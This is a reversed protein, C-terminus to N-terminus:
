KNSYEKIIEFLKNKEKNEKAENRMAFVLLISGVCLLYVWWPVSFWFSRTMVLTDVIIAIITTIFIPGYKKIYTFITVVVLFCIFIMGDIQNAYIDILAKLYIITCGIFEINKSLVGNYKKVITRSIAILLAIYSLLSIATINILNLDKMVINYLCFLSVYLVGKVFDNKNYILQIISWIIFCFVNIYNSINSTAFLANIVGIQLFLYIFSFLTYLNFKNIKLSKLTILCIVILSVVINLDINSFCFIKQFYIGPVLSVFVIIPILEDSKRFNVLKSFTFLLISLYVFDIINININLIIASIITAILKYWSSYKSNINEYIKEIIIILITTTPIVYRLYENISLLNCVSYLLANSMIYAVFKYADKKSFIYSLMYIAASILYFIINQKMFEADFRVAIAFGTAALLNGYSEFDVNELIEIKKMNEFISCALFLMGFYSLAIWNLNFSIILNIMFVILELVILNSCEKTNKHRIITFVIILLAVVYSPIIVQSKFAITVIYLIIGLAFSVKENFEKIKLNNNGYIYMGIIELLFAIQKIKFDLNLISLNTAIFLAIYVCSLAMNTYIEKDSLFRLNFAIVVFNIVDVISFTCCILSAISMIILETFVTIKYKTDKEQMLFNLVLSFIGAGTITCALNTTFNRVLFAIAFNSIVISALKLNPKDSRKSECWYILATALCSFAYYIYKGQGYISLYEGFLKFISISIFVIPIYSIAIYYFTSATKELKLKTKAIKSAGAFVFALLVLVMTKLINPIVNWTSTLFVIASLVILIAGTILIATNKNSSRDYKTSTEDSIRIDEKEYTKARLEATKNEYINNKEIAEKSLINDEGIINTKSEEYSESFTTKSIELKKIIDKLKQIEKKLANNQEKLDSNKTTVIVVIIALAICIIYM